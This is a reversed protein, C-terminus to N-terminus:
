WEDDLTALAARGMGALVDIVVNSYFREDETAVVAAALKAPLPLGGMQDHHAQVIAAVRVRRM